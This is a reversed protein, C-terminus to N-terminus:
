TASIATAGPRQLPVPLPWRMTVTTGSPSPEITATDVLGVLLALAVDPDLLDDDEPELEGGEVIGASVDPPVPGAAPGADVVTVVLGGVGDEVTIRVPVEPAHRAHLGVARSCAEGVAFRLEDVLGDELGARRAATVTVLRATRVHAPLPALLLEVVAM